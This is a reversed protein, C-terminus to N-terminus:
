GIGSEMSSARAFTRAATLPGSARSSTATWSASPRTSASSTAASCSTGAKALLAISPKATREPGAPRVSPITPSDRAPAGAFTLTPSPSATRM